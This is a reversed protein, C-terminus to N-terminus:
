SRMRVSSQTHRMLTYDDHNSHSPHQHWTGANLARTTNSLVRGSLVYVALLTQLVILFIM